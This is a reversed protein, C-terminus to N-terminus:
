SSSGSCRAPPFARRRPARRAGRGCWAPTPRPRSARAPAACARAKGSCAAPATDATADTEAHSRFVEEAARLLAIRVRGGVRGADERRLLDLVQDPRGPLDDRELGDLGVLDLRRAEIQAQPAVGPAHARAEERPLV